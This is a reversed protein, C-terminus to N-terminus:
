KYHRIHCKALLYVGMKKRIQVRQTLGLLDKGKFDNQQSMGLLKAKPTMLEQNFTEHITTGTWYTQMEKGETLFILIQEIDINTFEKLDIKYLYDRYYYPVNYFQCIGMEIVLVNVGKVKVFSCM